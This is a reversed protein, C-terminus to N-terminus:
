RSKLSLIVGLIIVITRFSLAMASNLQNEKQALKGALRMFSSPSKETTVSLPYRQQWKNYSHVMWETGKSNAVQTLVISRNNAKSTTEL